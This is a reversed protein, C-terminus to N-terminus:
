QCFSFSSFRISNNLDNICVLFLLPDLVSGQPVGFIVKLLDSLINNISVYQMRNTLYSKFWDNGIGRIGHHWLKKLLIEHDVTDFAKKLDIFVRCAFKNHDFAKEISDILNIIPHAASFNKRFAFQKLYLIKQETLFTM